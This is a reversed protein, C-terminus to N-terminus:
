VIFARPGIRHRGSGVHQGDAPEFPLPPANKWWLPDCLNVSTHLPVTPRIDVIPGYSTEELEAVTTAARPAVETYRQADRHHIWRQPVATATGTGTRVASRLGGPLPPGIKWWLPGCLNVSTHLPVTPRIDVIPDYATEELGAVDDSSPTRGRHKRQTGRHM